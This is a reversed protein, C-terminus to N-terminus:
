MVHQPCAIVHGGLHLRILPLTQGQPQHTAAFQEMRKEIGTHLCDNAIYLQVCGTTQSKATLVTQSIFVSALLWLRGM